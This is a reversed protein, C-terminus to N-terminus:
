AAGLDIGSPVNLFVDSEFYTLARPSTDVPTMRLDVQTKSANLADCAASIDIYRSSLVNRQATEGGTVTVSTLGIELADVPSSAPIAYEIEGNVGLATQGSFAQYDAGVYAAEAYTPTGPNAAIPTDKGAMCAITLAGFEAGTDGDVSFEYGVIKGTATGGPLNPHSVTASKRCNAEIATSFPVAVKIEAARARRMLLARAHALGFEISQLGRASPFYTDRALDGIPVELASGEGVEIGINGSSLTLVESQRDDDDAVIDQVDSIVNFRIDETRGVEADYDVVSTISFAWRRFEVILPNPQSVPENATPARDYSVSVSKYKKPLAKGDAVSIEQTGFEYISGIRDGKEPWDDYLGSGTFSTVFGAPSGTLRFARLIDATIDLSGTVRQEWMARMELQVKRLPAEGYSLNFKGEPIVSAPITMTGDEGELISSITVLHTLRDIHWVDTRGELTADPDTWMQPDVFAYDWFPAAKLTEAVARKQDEFDVPKALYELTVFESQLNEPLGVIRGFFLPELNTGEEMSLWCWQPRAGGLLAESPKEIVVSLGCFDGEAQSVTFSRLNEDNRAFSADFTTDTRDVLAFYYTAM